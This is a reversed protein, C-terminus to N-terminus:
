QLLQIGCDWFRTGHGDRLIGLPVAEEQGFEVDIPCHLKHFIFTPMATEKM